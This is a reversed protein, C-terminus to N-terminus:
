RVEAPPVADFLRSDNGCAADLADDPPNGGDRRRRGNSRAQALCVRPLPPWARTGRALVAHAARSLVGPSVQCLRHARKDRGQNRNFARRRSRRAVNPQREKIERLYDAAMAEISTHPVEGRVVGRARIGIVAGAYTMRRAAPLIEVVNGGVGHIFFVPPLGDGGKLTVLPTSGPARRERLAECLQDFRPAENILTLSIDLGLARELELVFTVANLSDGGSDFFDDEAARVPVLLV